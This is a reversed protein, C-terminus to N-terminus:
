LQGDLYHRAPQSTPQLFFEEAANLEAVTGRHLFIVDDALRKAQAIDHTVMIIKIGQENVSKIQQEIAATASPDMSATPEDLFMVCPDMALARAIALRQQEGGSLSPALQRSKALLGAAHLLEDRRTDSSSQRLALVYDINAAVSRRLVVPKQFVMAQMKRVSLDSAPRDNWLVTGTSPPLLGHLVRLLLSKGAGNHGLISTIGCGNLQLNINHLLHQSRISYSVARVDLPLLEAARNAIPRRSSGAQENAAAISAAPAGSTVRSSNM